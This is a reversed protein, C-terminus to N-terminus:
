RVQEVVQKEEVDDILQMVPMEVKQNGGGNEQAQGNLVQERNVEIKSDFEDKYM